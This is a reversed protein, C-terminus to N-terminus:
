LTGAAPNVPTDRAASACQAGAHIREGSNRANRQGPRRGRGEAYPNGPLSQHSRRAQRPRADAGRHKACQGFRLRRVTPYKIPMSDDGAIRVASASKLKFTWLTLTAQIPSPYPISSNNDPGLVSIKFTPDRLGLFAPM